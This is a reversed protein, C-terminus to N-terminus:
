RESGAEGLYHEPEFERRFQEYVPDDKREGDTQDTTDEGCPSGGPQRHHQGEVLRVLRYWQLIYRFSPRERRKASRGAETALIIITPIKPFEQVIDPAHM